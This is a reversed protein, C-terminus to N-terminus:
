FSLLSGTGDNSCFVPVVHGTSHSVVSLVLRRKPFLPTSPLLMDGGPSSVDASQVTGLAARVGYVPNVSGKM